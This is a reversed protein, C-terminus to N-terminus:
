MRLSSSRSEGPPETGPLPWGALLTHAPLVDKSLRLLDSGGCSDGVSAPLGAGPVGMLMRRLKLEYVADSLLSSNRGDENYSRDYLSGIWPNSSWLKSVMRRPNTTRHRWCRQRERTTSTISSKREWHMRKTASSMAKYAASMAPIRETVSSM